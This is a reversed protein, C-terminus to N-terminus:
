RPSQESNQGKTSTRPSKLISLLLESLLLGWPVSKHVGYIQVLSGPFAGSADQGTELRM